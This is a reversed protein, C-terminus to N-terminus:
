KRIISIRGSGRPQEYNIPYGALGALPSLQSELSQVGDSNRGFAKAYEVLALYDVVMEREVPRANKFMGFGDGGELLTFEGGAVRYTAGLDLPVFGHMKRSYVQVERVRYVGDAPGAVWMGSSDTRIGSKMTADITYKLGAVQMFGGFEGIGVSQAGFELADLVQQGSVELVCINSGFPQIERMTKITVDGKTIDDRVNGGNIIAFDCALGRKENTYWWAADAAFDGAGCDERRALRETTGPFFSCIASPAVAVRVGLQSEVTASLRDELKAVELDRGSYPYITGASVVKGNEITLFGLIGLYCGSQTLIVEEGAANKVRSGTYESHSHGDILAVFNTTHAIVETSTYCGCDPSTGLHGIVVVSDAERRAENVANQVADYLAQGDDGAIFDYERWVGSSDMFTSPRASLLTKPTTVGVFAVRATGNTVIAYSPFMREGAAEPSDRHVLNCCITKFKALKANDLMQPMGYDFEHNGLTAVQYGAANMIGIVSVGADYGGLATGQVCDGADVLMVNEGAAAMRAREAAIASFPVLGDDIHSHTDNTHLITVREASAFLPALAVIAATAVILKKFEM